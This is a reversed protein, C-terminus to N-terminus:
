QNSRDQGPNNGNGNNTGNDHDNGQNETPAQQGTDGGTLWGSQQGTLAAQAFLYIGAVALLIVIALIIHM